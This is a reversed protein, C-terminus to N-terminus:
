RDAPSEFMGTGQILPICLVMCLSLMGEVYLTKINENRTSHPTKWM